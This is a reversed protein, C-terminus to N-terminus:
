SGSKAKKMVKMIKMAGVRANEWEGKTIM